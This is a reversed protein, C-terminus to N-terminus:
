PTVTFQMSNSNLGGVNVVVNGTAAGGPVTVTISNLTWSGVPAAVGNFTVTSSGQTSGFSLGAITAQSGVRGSTPSISVIAPTPLGSPSIPNSGPNLYQSQCGSACLALLGVACGRFLVNFAVKIM